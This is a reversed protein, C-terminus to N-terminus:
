IISNIQEKLAATDVVLDVGESQCYMPNYEIGLTKSLKEYVKNLRAGFLEVLACDETFIIDTLGAGHPGVVVDASNFLRVNEALSRDELYYREFGFPELVEMVADENVVRRAIANSRSVYVNPSSAATTQDDLVSDLITERLWDLEARSREPYPPVILNQTKYMPESACKIRKEPWGIRSLTEEVFPPANDPVLVTVHTGTQQEFMQLYRIKPVTEVMWHYYNTPYRPILPAVTDLVPLDRPPTGRLLGRVPLQGFFLERSCMEMIAQKTYDPPGVSEQIIEFESTTVLGTESLIYGHEISSIFRETNCESKQNIKTIEGNEMREIPLVIIINRKILPDIIQRGLQKRVFLDAATVVTSGIGDALLKRHVKQPTFESPIIGTCLKERVM